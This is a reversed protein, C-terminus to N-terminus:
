AHALESQDLVSLVQQAMENFPGKAIHVNAGLNTFDIWAEAFLDYLIALCVNKFKDMGRILRCLTEGDIDPLLLEIYIVDPTYDNLLDIAQLGDTATMVQHKHKKLLRKMFKLFVTDNDVLLIKKM